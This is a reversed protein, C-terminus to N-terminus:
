AALKIPMIPYISFEGGSGYSWEQRGNKFKNIFWNNNEYQNFNMDSATITTILISQYNSKCLRGICYTGILVFTTLEFGAWALHVWYLMIRYLKDTFQPLDTTKEQYEPKRWWHFQCGRYLQFITTLPRLCWLGFWVMLAWEM